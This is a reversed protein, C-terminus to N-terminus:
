IPLRVSDSGTELAIIQASEALAEADTVDGYIAYVRFETGFQKGRFERKIGDSATISRTHMNTPKMKTPKM